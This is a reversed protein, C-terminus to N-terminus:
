ARDMIQQQHDQWIRGPWEPEAFGLRAGVLEQCQELGIWGLQHAGIRDPLRDAVDLFVFGAQQLRDFRGDHLTTPPMNPPTISSHNRSVPAASSNTAISM